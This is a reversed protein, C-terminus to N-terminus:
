ALAADVITMSYSGVYPDPWTTRLRLAIIIVDVSVGFPDTFTVVESTEYYSQLQSAIATDTLPSSLEAERKPIAGTQLIEIGVAGDGRDIPRLRGVFDDPIFGDYEKVPLPDITGLAYNVM